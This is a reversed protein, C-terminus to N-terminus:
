KRLKDSESASNKPRNNLSGVFAVFVVLLGIGAVALLSDVELARKLGISIAYSWGKEYIGLAFIALYTGIVSLLFIMWYKYRSLRQAVAPGFLGGILGSWFGNFM